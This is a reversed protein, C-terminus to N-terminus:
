PGMKTQKIDVLAHTNSQKFYNATAGTDVKDIIQPPPDVIIKNTQHLINIKHYTNTM